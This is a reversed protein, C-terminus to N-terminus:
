HQPRRSRAIEELELTLAEAVEPRGHFAAPTSQLLAVKIDGDSEVYVVSQTANITLSLDFNDISVMGVIARLLAVGPAIDSVGRVSAAYTGTRENLFVSSLTSAIEARGNMVSGDFAVALGDDTFLAAFAEADRRNWAALLQRYCSEVRAPEM